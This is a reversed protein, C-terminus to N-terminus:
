FFVIHNTYNLNINIFLVIATMGSPPGGILIGGLSPSILSLLEAVVGVQGHKNKNSDREM